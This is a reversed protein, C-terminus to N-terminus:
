GMDEIVDISEHVPDTKERKPPPPLPPSTTPPYQELTNIIGNIKDDSVGREKLLERITPSFRRIRGPSWNGSSVSDLLSVHHPSALLSDVHAKEDIRIKAKETSDQRQVQRMEDRLAQLRRRQELAIAQSRQEFPEVEERLLAGWRALAAFSARDPERQDEVIRVWFGDVRSPAPKQGLLALPPAVVMDWACVSAPFAVGELSATWAANWGSNVAHLAPVGAVGAGTAIVAGALGFPIRVANDVTSQMLAWPYAMWWGFVRQDVRRQATGFYKRWARPTGRITFDVLCDDYAADFCSKSQHRIDRYKQPEVYERMSRGAKQFSRQGRRLPEVYGPVIRIDYWTGASDRVQGRSILQGKQELTLFYGTDDAAAPHALFLAAVSVLVWWKGTSM